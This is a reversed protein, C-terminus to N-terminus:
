HCSTKIEAQPSLAPKQAFQDHWKAGCSIDNQKLHLVHARHTDKDPVLALIVIM